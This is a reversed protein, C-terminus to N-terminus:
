CGSTDLAVAPPNGAAADTYTVECTGAAGTKAFTTVANGADTSVTFGSTDGLTDSIASADPYGNTIAISNGEM